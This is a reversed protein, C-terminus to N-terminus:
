EGLKQALTNAEAQAELLKYVILACTAVEAPHQTKMAYQSIFNAILPNKKEISLIAKVMYENDPLQQIEARVPDAIEQHLLPLCSCNKGAM